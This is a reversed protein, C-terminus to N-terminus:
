WTSAGCRSVRTPPGLAPSVGARRSFFRSFYAPDEFGLAYGVEAITWATYILCRKAELMLRDHLMAARALARCAEVRSFMDFLRKQVLQHEAIPQGGQVRRRARDLAAEYAARAVGTFITAM